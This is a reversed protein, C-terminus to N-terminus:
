RSFRDIAEGGEIVCARIAKDIGAISALAPLFFGHDSSAIHEPKSRRAWTDADMTWFRIGSCVCEDCKAGLFEVLAAAVGEADAASAAVLFPVDVVRGYTSHARVAYVCLGKVYDNVNLAVVVREEEWRGADSSDCSQCFERWELQLLNPAMVKALPYAKDITRPAILEITYGQRM